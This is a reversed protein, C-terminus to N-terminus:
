KDIEKIFSEILAVTKDYEGILTNQLVADIKSGSGIRRLTGAAANIADPDLNGIADRLNVLADRVAEKDSDAASGNKKKEAAIAEDINRLLSELDSLLAGIHERIFVRDERKGAAELAKASESLGVAGINAAAGKLAHVCITFLPLNGTDLCKKIEGIKERGDSKFISLMRLYAEASGGTRSMGAKTNLGGIALERPAAPRGSMKASPRQKRKPIWKELVANLKPIDIPKSLYGNFSNELFMERAGSVANATLAIIPVNAYVGGM